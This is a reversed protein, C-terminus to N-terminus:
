KTSTTSKPRVLIRPMVWIPILAGVTVGRAFGRKSMPSLRAEPFNASSLPVFQFSFPIKPSRRYYREMRGFDLIPAKHAVLPSNGKIVTATTRPLTSQAGTAAPTTAVELQGFPSVMRRLSRTQGDISWYTCNPFAWGDNDYKPTRHVEGGVSVCATTLAVTRIPPPIPDLETDTSIQVCSWDPLSGSALNAVIPLADTGHDLVSTNTSAELLMASLGLM